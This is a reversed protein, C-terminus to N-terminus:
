LAGLWTGLKWAGLFIVIVGLGALTDYLMGLINEEPTSPEIM